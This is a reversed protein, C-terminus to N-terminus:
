ARCSDIVHPQTTNENYNFTNILWTEHFFFNGHDWLYIDRKETLRQATAIAGTSDYTVRGFAFATYRDDYHGSRIASSPASPIGVYSGSDHFSSIVVAGFNQNNITPLGDDPDTTVHFPNDSAVVGLCSPFVFDFAQPNDAHAPSVALVLVSAAGTGTALLAKTAKNM